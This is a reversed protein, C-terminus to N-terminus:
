ISKNENKKLKILNDIEELRDYYYQPKPLNCDCHYSAVFYKRFKELRELDWDISAM